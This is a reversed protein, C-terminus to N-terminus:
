LHGELDIYFEGGYPCRKELHEECVGKGCCYCMAVPENECDRENKYNLHECM